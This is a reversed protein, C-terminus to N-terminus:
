QVQLHFCIPKNIEESLKFATFKPPTKLLVQLKGVGGSGEVVDSLLQM